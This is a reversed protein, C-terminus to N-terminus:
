RPTVLPLAVDLGDLEANAAMNALLQAIIERYSTPDPQPYDRPLNESKVGQFSVILYLNDYTPILVCKQDPHCALDPYRRTHFGTQIEFYPRPNLASEAAPGELIVRADGGGTKWNFQVIQLKMIEEFTQSQRQSRGFRRVAARKPLEVPLERM